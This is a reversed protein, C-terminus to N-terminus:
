FTRCLADYRCNECVANDIVPQEGRLVAKMKEFLGDLDIEPIELIEMREHLFMISTEIKSEAINEALSLARRYLALQPAYYELKRKREEGIVRDTKFDLIHWGSSDKWLLDIQGTIVFDGIKLVMREERKEVEVTKEFIKRLLDNELLQILDEPSGYGLRETTKRAIENIERKDKILPIQLSALFKHVLTGWEAGGEGETRDLQKREISGMAEKKPCKLIDSIETAPFHWRGKARVIPFSDEPILSDFRKGKKIASFLPEGSPKEMPSVMISDIGNYVSFEIDDFKLGKGSTEVDINLPKALYKLNEFLYYNGKKQKQLKGAIILHDRARTIGVYLTRMLEACKKKNLFEYVFSFYIGKEEDKRINVAVIPGFLPDWSFHKPKEKANGIFEVLIVIPFELGKAAHITMLKVADTDDYNIPAEREVSESSLIKRLNEALVAIDKRDFSACYDIFKQLNAVRQAGNLMARFTAWAGRMNLAEILIQSPPRHIHSELRALSQRADVALEIEEETLKDHQERQAKGDLLVDLGARIDGSGAVFASYIVSDPLSFLPGRLLGVLNFTDGPNSLYLILNSVSSIEETLYFGQNGIEFHPIDRALLARKIDGTKTRTRYLIAIDRWTADRLSGDKNQVKLKGSGNEDGHVIAWIRRALLEENLENEFLFEVGGAFDPHNKRRFELSQPEPIFDFKILPDNPFLTESIKNIYKLINPATRFNDSLPLVSGGKSEVWNKAKVSNSVEAGRFRYISQKPDGVFFLTGGLHEAIREIIRWQLPDTDQFEDILFGDIEEGMEKALLTDRTLKDAEIIIDDFDPSSKDFLTDRESEIFKKFLEAFLATMEADKKDLENFDCKLFIKLESVILSIKGLFSRADCLRDEWNNKSGLTGFSKASGSETLMSNSLGLFWDLYGSNPINDTLKIIEDALKDSKIEKSIKRWVRMEDIIERAKNEDFYNKLLEINKRWEGLVNTHSNISLLEEIPLGRSDFVEALMDALNKWGISKALKEAIGRTESDARSIDRLFRASATKATRFSIDPENFDIDYGSRIPNKRIIGSCFSHITSIRAGSMRLAIERWFEKDKTEDNSAIEECRDAVRAIMEFAAKRTFTIAVIRDLADQPSLGKKLASELHLIFKETLVSTKGSGAGATMGLHRLIDLGARQQPTPEFRNGM